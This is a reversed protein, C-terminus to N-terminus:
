FQRSEEGTVFGFVQYDDQVGFGVLCFVVTEEMTRKNYRIRAVAPVRTMRGPPTYLAATVVVTSWLPGLLFCNGRNNERKIHRIRAVAPLRTMREASPTCGAENVIGYGLLTRPLIALKTTRGLLCLIM